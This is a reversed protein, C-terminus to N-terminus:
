KFWGLIMNLIGFATSTYTVTISLVLAIPGLILATLRSLRRSRDRQRVLWIAAVVAGVIVWIEFVWLFLWHRWNGTFTCYSFIVGNGLLIGIPVIMHASGSANMVACLGAAALFLEMPWGKVFIEWWGTVGAVTFAMMNGFALLALALLIAQETGLLARGEKVREALPQRELRAATDDEAFEADTIRERETGSFIAVSESPAEETTFSLPLSIRSPLEVQAQQAAEQLARAMAEASQYRDDPDKALAKLVVREFPESISPDSQRPLPLPDHAHKMLLALPTDAEFPTRQTLMEYLVVGLSYIDSRADSRNEMGQEPAIYNMTGLLAGPVTHRTGGVIQAIGFDAVVARGRRTLLINGPKIDRHIMGESHAYALGDLVDLLIRVVEGLPMREGRIRYDHLRTKLTDGELLELVMYYVDDHVDYDFVQVVNPHRLAAVAQAEHRFRARWSRANPKEDEMLDSRLVKVAVYRDLQPHYARYVRAMGGHGLPELVRYKGLMQGELGSTVKKAKKRKFLRIM